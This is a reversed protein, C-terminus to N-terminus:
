LGGKELKDKKKIEELLGSDVWVKAVTDPLGRETDKIFIGMEPSEFDKKVRYLGM